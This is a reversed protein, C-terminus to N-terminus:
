QFVIRTTKVSRVNSLTIPTTDPLTASLLRGKSDKVITVDTATVDCSGNFYVVTAYEVKTLTPATTKYYYFAPIETATVTIANGSIAQSTVTGTPSTFSLVVKSATSGLPMGMPIVQSTLTSGNYSGKWVELCLSDTQTKHRWRVVYLGEGTNSWVSDVRYNGNYNYFGARYWYWPYKVPASNGGTTRGSTSFLKFVNNNGFVENHINFETYGDIGSSMIAAELRLMIVAKSQVSDLGPIIPTGGTTWPTNLANADPPATSFNDYGIEGLIFKITTDGNLVNYGARQWADLRVATGDKEPSEGKQGIQEEVTPVQKVTAYYTRPYHHGQVYSWVFKGDDRFIKSMFALCNVRNSDLYTFGAMMLKMNPDATWMGTKGSLGVTNEYGDVDVWSKVAYGIVTIGENEIENGNEEISTVNQGNPFGADNIWQTNASPVAVSGFKAANNYYFNGSRTWSAPDEPDLNMENINPIDFYSKGSVGGLYQSSGKWATWQRKGNNKFHRYYRDNIDSFQTADYTIAAINSSNIAQKDKYGITQYIRVLGDYALVTTDIGSGETGGVFEKVTRKAPLPGTYRDPRIGPDSSSYTFRNGYICMEPFDAYTVYGTRQRTHTMVLLYRININLGCKVWTKTNNASTVLIAIPTLLSDPRRLYKLRNHPSNSAMVTDWNYFFLTDGGDFTNTYAFISDIFVRHSLDTFDKFGTFDWIQRLGRNGAYNFGNKGFNAKPSWDSQNRYPMAYTTDGRYLSDFLGTKYRPDVHGMADFFRDTSNGGGGGMGVGSNTGSFDLIMKPKITRITTDTAFTSSGGSGGGPGGGGTCSNHQLVHGNPEISIKLVITGGSTASYATFNFDGVYKTGGSNTYITDNLGANGGPATGDTTYIQTTVLTANSGCITNPDANSTTNIFGAAIKGGTANVTVTVTASNTAGGNDTVLLQYVYTGATLGTVTTSVSTPNTITGSGPGSIKSWAYSSITGDPDSSGSGSLTVSSTPLTITSPTAVPVSVPPQNGGGSGSNDMFWRYINVLSDAGLTSYASDWVVPSHGAGPMVIRYSGGPRYKLVSDQQIKSNVTDTQGGVDTAGHWFRAKWGNTAWRSFNQRFPDDLFPPSMVVWYKIRKQRQDFGGGFGWTPDGTNPWNSYRLADNGGQSYGTVMIKTTDVRYHSLMYDIAANLNNPFSMQGSSPSLPCVYLFRVTDGPTRVLYMPKGDNVRKPLGAGFLNNLLSGMEGNGSLGVILPYNKTPNAAYDSPTLVLGKLSGNFMVSDMGHYQASINFVFSLCILVGFIRKM